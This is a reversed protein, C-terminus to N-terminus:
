TSLRYTSLVILFKLQVFIPMFILNRASHWFGKNPDFQLMIMSLVVSQLLSSLTRKGLLRSHQKQYPHGTADIGAGGFPQRVIEFDFDTKKAISALVELGAEMIEPGIGDGALAVIKKTM